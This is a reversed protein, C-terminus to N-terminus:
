PYISVSHKEYEDLEVDTYAIVPILHPPYGLLLHLGQHLRINHSMLHTIDVYILFCLHGEIQMAGIEPRPEFVRIGWVNTAMALGRIHHRHQVIDDITYQQIM